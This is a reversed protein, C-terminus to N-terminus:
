ATAAGDVPETSVPGPPNDWRVLYARLEATLSCAVPRAASDAVGGVLMAGVGFQRVVTPTSSSRASAPARRRRLVEPLLAGGAFARRFGASTVLLPGRAGADALRDHSAAQDYSEGFRLEFTWADIRYGLMFAKGLGPRVHGRQGPTAGVGLELGLVAGHSRRAARTRSRIRIRRHIAATTPVAIRHSPDGGPDPEPEAEIPAPDVPPPAVPGAAPAETPPPDDVPPPGAPAPQAIAPLARAALALAVIAVRSSCM